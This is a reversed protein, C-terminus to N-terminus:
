CLSRSSSDSILSPRVQVEPKEGGCKQYCAEKAANECYCSEPWSQACMTSECECTDNDTPQTEPASCDTIPLFIKTCRMKNANIANQCECNRFGHLTACFIPEPLCGLEPNPVNAVENSRPEPQPESQPQSEASCDAIPLFIKTCRMKNANIANQCECNRAGHLKACFIPEPLCGLEPNPVQAVENARPQPQPEPQPEPQAPAEAASCDQLPLWIKTCRMKNANIANQCECSRPGDETACLIPEHLCKGEPEPVPFATVPCGTLMPMPGGCKNWCAVKAKEQCLCSDPYSQICMPPEDCQCTSDALAFAGLLSLFFISSKM